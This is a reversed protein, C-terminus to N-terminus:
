TSIADRVVKKEDDADWTYFHSKPQRVWYGVHLEWKSGESVFIFVQGNGLSKPSAKRYAHAAGPERILAAQMKLFTTAARSGQKYAKKIPHRTGWPDEKPCKKAEYVAFPFLLDTYEWDPDTILGYNPHLLARNLLHPDFQAWEPENAEDGPASALGICLDPVRM